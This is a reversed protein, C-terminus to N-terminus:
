SQELTTTADGAIQRALGFVESLGLANAKDRLETALRSIELDNASFQDTKTQVEASVTNISARAQQILQQQQAAPTANFETVRQQFLAQEAERVSRADRLVDDITQASSLGSLAMTSLLALGSCIKLIRSSM